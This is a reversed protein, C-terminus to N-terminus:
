NKLQFSIKRNEPSLRTIVADIDQGKKLVDKPHKIKKSWTIDSIHVLGEIGDEIEVFAGFDTLNRVQGRVKDGVQFREGVTDWPNPQLQKIGLSIRRDDQDIDSFRFKSKM